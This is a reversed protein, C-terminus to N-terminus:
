EHSHDGSEDEADPCADPEIQVTAHDIAYRESLVQKIAVMAEAADTSDSVSAHLTAMRKGSALQWIHVHHVDRVGSHCHRLTNIMEPTQVGEPVGELLIHGSRRLLSWASRLILLAVLISLAPDARLWGLWGVLIAAVVAAVSGLLDGLVHLSAAGMNVDDPDHHHLVRLVVVNIALGALAVWFMLGSEIPQPARLRQIAEVVIFITLAFQLMANVFGALVEVRAYGYSRRADAPKRAVWIAAFALLLALADVLMHAADALLALSGSWWGGLAELVLMALTLVFALLLRGERTGAHHDHTDAMHPMSRLRHRTVCDSRCRDVWLGLTMCWSLIWRM